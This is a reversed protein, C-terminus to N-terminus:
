RGPKTTQNSRARVELQFLMRQVADRELAHRLQAEEYEKALAQSEGYSMLQRLTFGHPGSTQAASDQQQDSEAIRFEVRLQLEYERVLNASNTAIAVRQYQWNDIHLLILRLSASTQASAAPTAGPSPSPAALWAGGMSRWQRQIEALLEQPVPSPVQLAVGRLADPNASGRLRFGCASLSAGLTPALVACGLAKLAHRRPLSPM